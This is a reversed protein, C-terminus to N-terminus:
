LRPRDARQAGEREGAPTGNRPPYAVPLRTLLLALGGAFALAFCGGLAYAAGAPLRSVAFGLASCAIAILYVTDVAHQRSLGAQVLRHSLHDRGPTAFPNRGHALRSICVLTMDFVPVGMILVPTMWTIWNKGGVFQLRLGIVALLMGLLLSGADGMFISASRYNFRLFGLCGGAVAAAIGALEPQGNLTGLIAFSGATIVCLGAALGNMNDLFNTANAIGSLWVLTIAINAWGPLWTLQVRVGSDWLLWAVGFQICLRFQWSLGVCDDFVGVLMLVTLVGFVFPLPQQRFLPAGGATLALSLLIALYIAVGGLLPTPVAHTKRSAPFDFVGAQTALQRACPTLVLAAALAVIFQLWAGM